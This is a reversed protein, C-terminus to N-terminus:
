VVSTRDQGTVLLVDGAALTLGDVINPAAGGLTAVNVNSRARAQIQIIGPRISGTAAVGAVDDLMPLAWVEQVPANIRSIRGMDALMSGPAFLTRPDGQIHVPQGPTASGGPLMQGLLLLRNITMYPTQAGNIEAYFLPVRLNSQPITNFQITM